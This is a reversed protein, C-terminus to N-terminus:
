GAKMSDYCDRAYATSYSQNTGKGTVRICEHTSLLLPVLLAHLQVLSHRITNLYFAEAIQHHSM